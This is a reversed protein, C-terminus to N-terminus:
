WILPVIHTRKQFNSIQKDTQKDGNKKRSTLRQFDRLWIYTKIERAPPKNKPPPPYAPKFPFLISTLHKSKQKRTLNPPKRYTKASIYTYHQHSPRSSIPSILQGSIQTSVPLSYTSQRHISIALDGRRATTCCTVRVRTTFSSRSRAQSRDHHLIDLQVANSGPSVVHPLYDAMEKRWLQYTASRIITKYTRM